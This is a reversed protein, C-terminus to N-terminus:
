PGCVNLLVSVTSTPNTVNNGRNAVTLDLLGDQNFDGVAMSYPRVGVAFTVPAAFSGSGQNLFLAVNGANNDTANGVALDLRGDRNFDGVAISMCSNPVGYTVESAFGGDGQNLMVGLMDAGGYAVALDPRGDGNFDGVVLGAPGLGVAFTVQSSFGGDGNGVLVGVTNDDNNAVALDLRGNGSFDGEVLSVPNNGVAYPVQPAFGGDGLNLLVSLTAGMTNAVAVDLKGDGNFDGLLVPSPYNGVPYTVQAAFGGDGQNFLVSITDAASNTVVLDPRGDGNFDGAAVQRPYSGVAFTAQPAFSGGGQNVLLGVDDDGDNVVAIDLQGDGDFDAVAVSYPAVGENYTAMTFSELGPAETQNLLVSVTDGAGPNGFNSAAVDPWGDRNFDGVALARPGSGVPSPTQGTFGGDGDNLFVQATGDAENAVALDPKGDRNFDGVEVDFPTSNGGSGTIYDVETPFAGGGQNLRVSLTGLNKNVVAIDPRGDGNFDGVALEIPYSEFSLGSAVDSDYITPAGYQGGGINLLVAITGDISNAVAFDLLGDGNFDAVSVSVPGGGAAYTTPVGFTGDGANLLVSITNGAGSSGWVAVVLDLLGDGNFDGLEVGFPQSGVTYTVPSAFVGNGQNMLVGVSTGGYYAVALDLAGDGNLDGAVIGRPDSGSGAYVVQGAFGGDEGLLVSITNDDGNAVALDQWGDSNFDAAVVGHPGNGVTYTTQAAFSLPGALECALSM